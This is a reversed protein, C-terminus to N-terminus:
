ETYEALRRLRRRWAGISLEGDSPPGHLDNPRPLFDEGPGNMNLLQDRLVAWHCRLLEPSTNAWELTM